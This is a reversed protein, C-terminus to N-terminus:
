DEKETRAGSERTAGKLWSRLLSLVFGGTFMGLIYVLIVLISVPLRLSMTWFSVTIAQLNQITFLLVAATVLIILVFHVYRM